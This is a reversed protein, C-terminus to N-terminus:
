YLTVSLIALLRRESRSGSTNPGSSAPTSHIRSGLSSGAWSLLYARTQTGGLLFSPNTIAGLIRRRALVCNKRDAVPSHYESHPQRLPHSERQRASAYYTIPYPIPYSFNGPEM